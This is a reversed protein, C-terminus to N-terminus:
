SHFKIRSSKLHTFSDPNRIKRLLTGRMKLYEMKYVMKGSFIWNVSFYKVFIEAAKRFFEKYDEKQKGEYENRLMSDRFTEINQIFDRMSLAYHVFDKWNVNKEKLLPELYPFALDSSAFNAIARGFNKVINKNALKERRAKTKRNEDKFVENQHHDANSVTISIITGRQNASEEEEGGDSSEESTSRFDDRGKLTAIKKKLFRM